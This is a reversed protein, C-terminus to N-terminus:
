KKRNKDWEWFNPIHVAPHERFFKQLRQIVQNESDFHRYSIARLEERYGDFKQREQAQWVRFESVAKPHDNVIDVTLDDIFANYASQHKREYDIRADEQARKRAEEERRKSSKQQLEETKWQENVEALYSLIGNFTKPTYTTGQTNKYAHDILYKTKKMGHTEIVEQAKDQASRTFGVGSLNHFTQSFYELIEQVPSQTKTSSKKPQKATVKPSSEKKPSSVEIVKDEQSTVIKKSSQKQAKKGGSATLICNYDKTDKTREFTYSVITGGSSTPKQILEKAAKELLRKRRSPKHYENGEIAHERFFRATSMKFTPYHAFHSDVKRYLLRAIDSKLNSVVSLIVPQLYGSKLNSIILPHLTVSCKEHIVEERSKKKTLSLDSVIHFHRVESYTTDENKDYFVYDFAFGTYALQLLALNLAEVQKKGYRKGLVNELIQRRSFEVVGSTPCGEQYWLYQLAYWYEQTQVTPYGYEATPVIKVKRNVVQGDPLTEPELEILKSPVFTTTRKPKTSWLGPLKEFNTEVRAITLAKNLETEEGQSKTPEKPLITDTM